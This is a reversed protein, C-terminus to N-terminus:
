GNITIATAPDLDRGGVGVLHERRPPAPDRDLPKRAPPKKPQESQQM